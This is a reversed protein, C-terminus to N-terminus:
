ARDAIERRRDFDGSYTLQNALTALLLARTAEDDCTAIAADLMEIRETDVGGFTSFTGRHNTLAAASLRAGDGARRALRCAKLWTDRHEPDGALREATGLATLLDIRTAPDADRIQDHLLLAQRFFVVADGPALAALAEEGAQRAWDRARSNDSLRTAQLWHHALQAVPASTGADAGTAELTEAVRRHLSATRTAGLNALIAHQVLAHAFLFRGPSDPLERVLAARAADQLIALVKEDGLGTVATVVSLDFESGIVAATGLVDEAATGLRAVRAGLVARVSDPMVDRGSDDDITLAALQGTEDLHRMVETVFFANGGTEAVLSTAFHAATPGADVGTWRTVLEVVDGDRLGGLHVHEVSPVRHLAAVAHTMPHDPALEDRRFTGVLLLRAPTTSAALHSLLSATGDDAWHLDDLFVVLPADASLAAFLDDAASFLLFRETEPDSSAAEPVTGVRRALGPAIPLVGAGHRDVHDRLVETPAHSVLHALANVFARYPARLDEECWGMAVTAGRSHWERTAHAVVTTKGLGPEGSVFVVRRQGSACVADYARDLAVLEDSRGVFSAATQALRAPLPTTSATSADWEIEVVDIPDPLGKLRMEGRDAFGGARRGGALAQVLDAALIEGGTAVACLRAALIVPEGFCDDGEITVDGVALGTRVALAPEHGQANHRHI